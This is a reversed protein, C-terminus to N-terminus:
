FKFGCNFARRRFSNNERDFLVYCVCTIRGDFEMSNFVTEFLVRDKLVCNTYKGFKTKTEINEISDNLKRLNQKNIEIQYTTRHLFIQM